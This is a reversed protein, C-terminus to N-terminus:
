VTAHTDHFYVARLANIEVVSHSFTQSVKALPSFHQSCKTFSQSTNQLIYFVSLTYQEQLTIMFKSSHFINVVQVAKTLLSLQVRICVTIDAETPLLSSTDCFLPFYRCLRTIMMLMM